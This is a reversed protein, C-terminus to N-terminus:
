CLPKALTLLAQLTLDLCPLLRHRELRGVQKPDHLRSDEPGVRRGVFIQEKEVVEV